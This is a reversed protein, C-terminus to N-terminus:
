LCAVTQRFEIFTYGTTTTKNIDNTICSAVFCTDAYAGANVGALQDATLETLTEKKIKLM